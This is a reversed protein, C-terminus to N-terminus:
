RAPAWPHTRHAYESVHCLAFGAPCRVRLKFSSSYLCIAQLGPETGGLLPSTNMQSALNGQAEHSRGSHCGI